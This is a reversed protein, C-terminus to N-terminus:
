YCFCWITLYEYLLAIKLVPLFLIATVSLFNCLLGLLRVDAKSLMILEGMM